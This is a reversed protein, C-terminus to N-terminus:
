EANVDERRPSTVTDNVGFDRSAKAVEVMSRTVDYLQQIYGWEILLEVNDITEHQKAIDANSKPIINYGVVLNAAPSPVKYFPNSNIGEYVAQMKKFDVM